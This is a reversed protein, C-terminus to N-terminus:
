ETPFLLKPNLLGNAWGVFIVKEHTTNKMKTKTRVTAINRLSYRAFVRVVTLDMDIKQLIRRL